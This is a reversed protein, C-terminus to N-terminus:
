ACLDVTEIFPTRRYYDYIDSFQRYYRPTVDRFDMRYSVVGIESPFLVGVMYLASSIFSAVARPTHTQRVLHLEVPVDTVLPTMGTRARVAEVMEPSENRHPIYRFVADPERRRIEGLYALYRERSRFIAESGIGLFWTEGNSGERRKRARLRELTNRHMINASDAPLGDYVTFYHLPSVERLRLRDRVRLLLRRVFWKAAPTNDRIDPGGSARRVSV